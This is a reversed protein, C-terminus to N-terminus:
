APKTREKLSSEQRHSKDYQGDPLIFVQRGAGLTLEERYSFLDEADQRFGSLPRCVLSRVEPKRREKEDWSHNM